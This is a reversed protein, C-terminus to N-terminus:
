LKSLNKKNSVVVGIIVLACLCLSASSVSSILTTTDSDDDEPPTPGPTPGPTYWSPPDPRMMQRDSPSSSGPGPILTTVATDNNQNSTNLLDAIVGDRPTYVNGGFTPTSGMIPPRPLPM